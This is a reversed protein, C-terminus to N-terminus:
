SKQAANMADAYTNALKTRIQRLKTTDTLSIGLRGMSADSLLGDRSTTGCLKAFVNLISYHGPELIERGTKPDKRRPFSEIKAAALNHLREIGVGWPDSPRAMEPTAQVAEEQQQLSVQTTAGSQPGTQVPPPQPPGTEDESESQMGSHESGYGAEESAM